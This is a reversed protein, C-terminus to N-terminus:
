PKKSVPRPRVGDVPNLFDSVRLGGRPRPHSVSPARMAATRGERLLHRRLADIGHSQPRTARLLAQGEASGRIVSRLQEAVGPSGLKKEFAVVLQLARHLEDSGAPSTVARHFAREVASRSSSWLEFRETQGRRLVAMLAREFYSM